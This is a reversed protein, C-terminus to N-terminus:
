GKRFLYAAIPVAVIVTGVCWVTAWLAHDGMPTGVMLSRMAEIVHTVPQNEAFIKLAWPMGETPVFASSAFTLPFVFFFGMWQVAEVTRALLGM